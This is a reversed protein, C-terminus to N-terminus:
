RPMWYVRIGSRRLSEDFVQQMSWNNEIGQVAVDFTEGVIPFRRGQAEMNARFTPNIRTGGRKAAKSAALANPVRGRPEVFLGEFWYPDVPDPSGGAGGGGPWGVGSWRELFRIDTFGGTEAVCKEAIAGAAYMAIDGIGLVPWLASTALGPASTSLARGLIGIAEKAVTGSIGPVPEEKYVAMVAPEIVYDMVIGTVKWAWLGGPDVLVTPLNGGYVYRHREQPSALRSEAPDKTLFRGTQPDYFRARMYYLGDAEAMVGLGGVYTFPNPTSGEQGQPEGYPTNAYRDTVQGSEDTLGVVTGLDNTHYYRESGDAGIRAVLEAGHIYYATIQDEADTECLVHTMGRGRDLVYRTELGDEIRAIRASLGDYLHEVTHLGTRQSILHEECDYAFTTMVGRITRSILNGNADHEYTNLADRTNGQPLPQGPHEPSLDFHTVTQLRNDPDYRYNELFEEDLTPPLTGTETVSLPTGMGDREWTFGLLSSDVGDTTELSILYGLGDYGRTESLGNPLSTSMLRMGAYSYDTWRDAWDTITRLRNAADYTYTLQKDDPYTLSTRNGVPDYGYEVTQGYGDTSSRLRNQEDYTFLSTGTPDAMAIVNGNDDYAYAVETADAYHIATLRNEADYFLSDTEGKADTVWIQNGVEDYGYEYAYGDGDTARILRNTADYERLSVWQDKADKVGTLNGTPDYSYQTVGGAADMVTLLRGLADYAYHTEKATADTKQTVHGLKDYQFSWENALEDQIGIKRHLADYAYTLTVDSADTETLMNGHPDYTHSWQNGEVDETLLLRDAGDYAYTTTNRNANVLAVRRDLQDYIYETIRGQPNGDLPEEVRILNSNPDYASVTTNGNGDTAHTLNGIEDYAFNQTIPHPPDGVPSGTIQIVRDADDYTYSTTHDPDEPGSGRGDTVWIRRWLEDYGHWTRNDEPDIKELLLGDEDYIWQHVNGREDTETLRQGFENYTWSKTVSDTETTNLYRAEAVVNGRDDYTWATVFGLADTKGTPLDPFDPDVYEVSTIGGDNPDEPDDPETTSTVNGRDDYTFETTKGNRDTITTRNNHDDYSYSLTDGLPNEISLLLKYLEEHTHITQVVQPEGNVTVTDIITTQNAEPTAYQFITVDGSGDRQEIVRSEEDYVNTVTTVGRQDTITELQGNETYTYHITQGEVDTVESLLGDTYSHHVTRPPYAFDTITELLGGDTYSLILSRGVPDTVETVLDPFGPEDYVLTITNGNKDAMSTLRGSSDFQYVDLNRKTVTWTDDPNHVLEDYLNPASPQYGGEGDEIWYDTQGDGWRVPVQAHPADAHLTINYSHTWGPGLLGEQPDMANYYRSLALPAGRTAFSLDTEEHTFNGTATNVPDASDGSWAQNGFFEDFDPSVGIRIHDALFVAPGGVSYVCIEDCAPHGSVAVLQWDDGPGVSESWWWHGGHGFNYCVM